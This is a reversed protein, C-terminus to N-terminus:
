MYQIPDTTGNVEFAHKRDYCTGCTGCAKEGGEYCSWTLEYPAKLDLGTKVVQGKNMDLLPALLKLQQGSGQYIAENMANWFEPTCDPYARGASDDAHAGYYIVEAGVSLAISSACSIMLGNRFPVYTDVTGQGGMEELQEAYSQHKIEETSQKLLSCNSFEMVTSLDKTVHDVGYHKVVNEACQVEKDHKQGYFLSLALVNDVGYRDIALALCTTSDIGGSFLVVAKKNKITKMM